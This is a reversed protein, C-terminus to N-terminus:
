DAACCHYSRDRARGRRTRRRASAAARRSEYTTHGADEHSRRRQRATSSTTLRLGRHLPRWTPQWRHGHGGTGCRTTCSSRAPGRTAAVAATTYPRVVSSRRPRIPTQQCGASSRSSEAYYLLCLGVFGACVVLLADFTAELSARVNVDQTINLTLNDLTPVRGPGQRADASPVLVARIDGGVRAAAQANRKVEYREALDDM